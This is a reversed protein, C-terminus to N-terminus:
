HIQVFFLVGYDINEPLSCSSGNPSNPIMGNNRWQSYQKIPLPLTSRFYPLHVDPVRRFLTCCKNQPHHFLDIICFIYKVSFLWMRLYHQGSLYTVCSTENMKCNLENSRGGSGIIWLEDTLIHGSSREICVACDGSVSSPILPVVVCYRAVVVGRNTVIVHHLPIITVDDPIPACNDSFTCVDITVVRSNNTVITFNPSIVRPNHSFIASKVSFGAKSDVINRQHLIQGFPGFHELVDVNGFGFAGSRGNHNEIKILESRDFPSWSSIFYSNFYLLRKMASFKEVTALDNGETPNHGNENCLYEPIGERKKKYLRIRVKEPLLM